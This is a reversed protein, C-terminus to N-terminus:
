THTDKRQRAAGQQLTRRQRQTGGLHGDVTATLNVQGRPELQLLRHVRLEYGRAVPQLSELGKCLFAGRLVSPLLLRPTTHKHGTPQPIIFTKNPSTGLTKTCQLVVTPSITRERELSHWGHHLPLIRPQHGGVVNANCRQTAAVALMKPKHIEFACTVSKSGRVFRGGQGCARGACVGCHQPLLLTLGVILREKNAFM